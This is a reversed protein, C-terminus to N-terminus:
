VSNLADHWAFGEVVTLVTAVLWLAFWAVALRAFGWAKAERWNAVTVGLAVLMLALTVLEGMEYGPM